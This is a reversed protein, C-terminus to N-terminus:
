LLVGHMHVAVAELHGTAARHGTLGLLLLRGLLGRLLVLVLLVVLDRVLAVAAAPLV